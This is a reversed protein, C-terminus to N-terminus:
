PKARDVHASARRARLARASCAARRPEGQPLTPSPPAPGWRLHRGDARLAGCVGVAHRRPQLPLVHGAAGLCVGGACDGAGAGACRWTLQRPNHDAVSAPHMSHPPRGRAVHGPFPRLQAPGQLKPVRPFGATAVGAPGIGATAVGAMTSLGSTKLGSGAVAVGAAVIRPQAAGATTSFGATKFGLGFGCAHPPEVAPRLSSSPLM